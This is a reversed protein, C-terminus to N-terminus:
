AEVQSYNREPYALWVGYLRRGNDAERVNALIYMEDPLIRKGRSAQKIAKNASQRDEHYRRAAKLTPREGAANNVLENSRLSNLAGQAKRVRGRKLRPYDAERVDYTCPLTRWLAGDKTYASPEVEKVGAIHEPDFNKQLRAFNHVVDVRGRNLQNMRSQTSPSIGTAAEIAARSIPRPSSTQALYVDRLAARWGKTTALAAVTVGIPIIGIHEAALALAAKELSRLYLVDNSLHMLGLRMANHRARRYKYDSWGVGAAAARLAADSINGSGALDLSRALLWLGYATHEGMKLAAAALGAYVKVTANQTLSPKYNTLTSTRDM